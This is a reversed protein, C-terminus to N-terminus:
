QNKKPSDHNYGIYRKRHNNLRPVHNIMIILSCIIKKKYLKGPTYNNTNKNMKYTWDAYEINKM